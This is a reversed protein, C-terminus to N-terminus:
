EKPEYETSDSSVSLPGPHLHPFENILLEAVALEIASDGLFALTKSTLIDNASELLITKPEVAKSTFFDEHGKQHTFVAKSFEKKLQPLPPYPFNAIFLQDVL